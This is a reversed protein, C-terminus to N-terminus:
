DKLSECILTRVEYRANYVENIAGDEDDFVGRRLVLQECLNDM